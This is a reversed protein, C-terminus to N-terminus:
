KGGGKEGTVRSQGHQREDLLAEAGSAGLRGALPEPSLGMPVPIQTRLLVQPVANEPAREPGAHCGVCVRQEGKRMWFWGKEAQLINGGRDLLEFRLPRESPVQLYFSGDPEVTTEGLVGPARADTQSWVRVKAIAGAPIRADRTTYANLCLVNAGQRNGLASPHSPPLPRLKVPVPQFANAKVVPAPAAMQGPKVRYVGFASDPAQRYSVLWEGPAVEAAPGVFEGKPLTLEIQGARASTFRALRTGSQFVIDGTALETASHRDKGHDCRYTEVGSGDTFVTFIDRTSSGAAPHPAEYLVRGDSLVADPIQNGPVYTLRVPTGGALPVIEMQFGRTTKRAYVIREEPLYFPRICDEPVNTVRRPKGGSLPMEWVQWADGAREKGAFLVREADFSLAADASAVFGPVVARSGAPAYLRLKAGAPFREGGGLGAQVDYKPAETYVFTGPAVPAAARVLGCM